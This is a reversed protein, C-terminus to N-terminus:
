KIKLGWPILNQVFRDIHQNTNFGFRSWKERFYEYPKNCDKDVKQQDNSKGQLHYVLSNNIMFFKRIGILYCNVFLDDDTCYSFLKEDFPGDCINNKKNFEALKELLKKHGFFPMRYGTVISNDNYNEFDKLLQREKFENYEQGYNKIIHFPTHGKTPEISRSCFLYSGPAHKKAENTLSLDLNPMLYMDTHCLYFYKGQAIKACENLAKNLGINKGNGIVKIKDSEYKKINGNGGNDWLIVEYNCKWNKLSSIFVYELLNESKYCPLLISIDM